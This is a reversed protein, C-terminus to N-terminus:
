YIARSYAELCDKLPRGTRKALREAGEIDGSLLLMKSGKALTTWAVYDLLEDTDRRDPPVARDLYDSMWQRQDCRAEAAKDRQVRAADPLRPPRRFSGSHALYECMDPTLDPAASLAQRM